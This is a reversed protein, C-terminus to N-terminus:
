ETPPNTKAAIHLGRHLNRLLSCFSATVERSRCSSLRRDRSIALKTCLSFSQHPDQQAMGIILAAPALIANELFFAFKELRSAVFYNLIAASVFFEGPFRRERDSSFRQPIALRGPFNAVQDLLMTWVHKM